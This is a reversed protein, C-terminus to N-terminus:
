SMLFKLGTGFMGWMKPKLALKSIFQAPKDMHGEENLFEEIGANKLKIFLKDTQAENLSNLYNRIKWHMRLEKKIPEIEKNYNELPKKHKFHNDITKACAKAAELGLMIGGGSTSKTQFAADGVLLINEKVAKELPPGVPILSSIRSNFTEEAFNKEKAFLDFNEKIKEGLNTGLGIRSVSKNEPSNWAFFGKAYNGLYVNVKKENFNGQGRVQYAHIFSNQKPKGGFKMERTKSLAGDAGVIVQAKILEGREKAQFFVSNNNINIMRSNNKIEVGAAHAEKALKKDFDARDILYAVPTERQVSLMYNGPSYIDAGYITNVLCESLDLGLEKVGSASILGTCETPEGIKTHEELVVCEWGQEALLKATTLGTPGGGIICVNYM